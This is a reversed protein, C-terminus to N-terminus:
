EEKACFTERYGLYRAVRFSLLQQTLPLVAVRYFLHTALGVMCGILVGGVIQSTTHYNLLKDAAIVAVFTQMLAYASVVHLEADYTEAYAIMFTALFAAEQAQYSPWNGGVAYADVCTPTVLATDHVVVRVVVNVAWNLSSGLGFLLLYLECYRLSAVYLSLTTFINLYRTGALLHTVFSADFPQCNETTWLAIEEALWAYAHTM